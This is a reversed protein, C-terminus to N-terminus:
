PQKWSNIKEIFEKAKTYGHYYSLLLDDENSELRGVEQMTPRIIMAKGNLELEESLAVQDRYLENREMLADLFEPYDSYLRRFVIKAAENFTSYNGKKRTLVVVLRDCGKELARKVPISDCIGGDLYLQGDIEVPSTLAPMSCSARGILKSREVEDTNMYEAKGTEINSVVAEWQIRNAVFDEYSFGYQVTYEEFVKDLDVFKHSTVMQPVGYFSNFPNKQVMCSRFYGRKNAVYQYMNCCGASVGIVYDFRIDNDLFCDIVGSTFVGRLGGGELVLGVKNLISM